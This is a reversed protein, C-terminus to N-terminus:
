HEGLQVLGAAGCEYPNEPEHQPEIASGTREDAPWGHYATLGDWLMVLWTAIAGYMPLQTVECLHWGFSPLWDHMHVRAFQRLGDTVVEQEEGTPAQCAMVLLVAVFELQCRLHDPREGTHAAREWGFARYFGAVDGLITGKDRRDYSAQNIACETQGEFLRWYEDSWEDLTTARSVEFVERLASELTVGDKNTSHPL